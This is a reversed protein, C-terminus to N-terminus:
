FCFGCAAYFVQGSASFIIVVADFVPGGSGQRGIANIIYAKTFHRSYFAFHIFHLTFCSVFVVEKSEKLVQIGVFLKEWKCCIFLNNVTKPSYFLRFVWLQYLQKVM